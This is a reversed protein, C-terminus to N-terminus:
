SKTKHVIPKNGLVLAIDAAVFRYWLVVLPATAAHWLAHADIFKWLPPFDLVELLMAVNVAAMFMLLYVKGPHSRGSATGLAWTLWVITQVAGAAVCLGVHLGYDFLVNLMRHVHISYMVAIPIGIGAFVTPKGVGAVRTLSLFLNYGVLAGASFYDYRETLRTDRCHFISSWLWANSSVAFHIMWLTAYIKLTSNNMSSSAGATNLTAASRTSPRASNKTSTTTHKRYYGLIKVFCVMNAVLNLISFVVSAPEQAGFVRIFPWKGFYKEVPAGTAAQKQDELLWMCRYSCDSSCDWSFLALWFADSQKDPSNINGGGGSCLPSCYDVSDSRELNQTALTDNVRNQDDELLKITSPCGITQCTDVCTRFQWSEDGSSASARPTLLLILFILFM